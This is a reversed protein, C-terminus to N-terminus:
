APKLIVIPFERATKDQFRQYGPNIKIWGEWLRGRDEASAEAARVAIKASGIQIHAQPDHKLNLYWSPHLDSGINSAMVAFGEEVAMYVLPVTRKRQSKRGTTTLLLIRYREGIWRALLRYLAVIVPRELKLQWNSTATIM